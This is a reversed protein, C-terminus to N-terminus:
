NEENEDEVDDSTTTDSLMAELSDIAGRQLAESVHSYRDLTMTVSSHGLIDSVVKPHVNRELMLTAATHRIDHLRIRTIKLRDCMADHLRKWAQQSLWRGRGNDFV